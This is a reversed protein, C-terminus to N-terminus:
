GAKREGRYLQPNLTPDNYMKMQRYVKLLKEGAFIDDAAGELSQSLTPSSCAPLPGAAARGERPPRSDVDTRQLEEELHFIRLSM